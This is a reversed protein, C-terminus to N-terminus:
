LAALRAGEGAGSSRQRRGLREGLAGGPRGLRQLSPEFRVGAASDWWALMWAGRATGELADASRLLPRAGLGEALAAVYAANSALPGEVIVPSASSATEPRALDGVMLLTRDACHLSALAPRLREPVGAIGQAIRAGRRFVRYADADRFLDGGSADPPRVEWGEGLVEVLAQETALEPSAGGCLLAFERGGMFRATPVARGDVAVNVLEGRDASLRGPDAGPAMAVCWTGTSVVTALPTARLYRALCANSDHVGAIVEIGAPLRWAEALGPRLTGVVDWANRLPAFRKAIGRAVAWDSYRNRAPDWLGTHCGLSSIETSAVGGFWWSWYQPYPVWYRIRAALEPWRRLVFDIQRGGNLGKELVPTGHHAFNALSADFAATVDGYGDWEYDIPPLVLGAEDIACFAAGHTAVAIRQPVEGALIAPVAEQLWAELRRVGLALFGHQEDHVSENAVTASRCVAGDADVLMLKANSKGVDLVLTGSM